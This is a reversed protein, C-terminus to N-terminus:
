DKSCMHDVYAAEEEQAKRMREIEDDEEQAAIMREVEMDEIEADSPGNDDADTDPEEQAAIRQEIEMDEIEADSPGDDAEDINQM